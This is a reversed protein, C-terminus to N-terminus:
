GFPHYRSVACRRSTSRPSLDTTTDNFVVFKRRGIESRFAPRGTAAIPTDVAYVVLDHQTDSVHTTDFAFAWGVFATPGTPTGTAIVRFDNAPVDPRSAFPPFLSGVVQGDVRESRRPLDALGVRM